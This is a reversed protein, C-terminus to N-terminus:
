MGNRRFMSPMVQFLSDSGPRTPKTPKILKFKIVTFECKALDTLPYLAKLTALTKEKNGMGAQFGYGNSEIEDMNALIISTITVDAGSCQDFEFMCKGISIPKKGPIIIATQLKGKIGDPKGKIKLKQTRAITPFEGCQSLHDVILPTCIRFANYHYHHGCDHCPPAEPPKRRYCMECLAVKARGRGTEAHCLSQELNTIYRDPTRYPM